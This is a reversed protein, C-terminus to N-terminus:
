ARASDFLSPAPFEDAQARCCATLFALVNTGQKRATAAVTMLREAFLNGRKSQTGFSRKRWLVFARLEREAHNNTPEVDDRQAFTWLATKHALVDACSGSLGDIGAAVARSLAAEMQERVPRLWAVFRERELKGEKYSHWYEFVLGTYDLLEQGFAAAPGDRESFAVFKRLLHAWCIQRQEMAWFNLAKARDSVLIGHLAGYLPELTAKTGDAVIRYVTAVATAITWLSMAVGAQLWGTGDTHKVEAQRVREWAEEVAPAVAESGRTEVASIAGLSIRVGLVDNLLQQAKRRSLHYVGTFLAILAMLRPGFPSAPIVDEDFAARTRYGCHVCSVAHRRHETTHPRIPPVETQQYRTPAEDPVQPLPKWCNECEAPFHDVVEDVQEPPLLDRRNGRHGPQGGRKRESGSKGHEKRQQRVGPPDSSPPAGSNRSNRGLKEMLENVLKKLAAIQADQAAIRADQEAIRADQEAIRADRVALQAELEAIREDRWDAAV